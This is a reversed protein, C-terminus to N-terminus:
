EARYAATRRQWGIQVVKGDEVLVPVSRQGALCDRMRHRATMIDSTTSSSSVARGSWGTGCRRRTRCRDRGSSNLSPWPEFVEVLKAFSTISRRRCKRFARFTIAISSLPFTALGASSRAATTAWCRSRRCTRRKRAEELAMIINRSGGSTSLGVAVAEPSGTCDVPSSCCSPAVDNRLRRSTRPSWPYRSQPFPSIVTRPCCVISRGIEQTFAEVAYSGDIGPLAFTLASRAHAFELASRVEEDGEPPGFGM